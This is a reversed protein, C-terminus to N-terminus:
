RRTGADDAGEDPTWEPLADEGYFEADSPLEESLEPEPPERDLSARLLKMRMAEETGLISEVDDHDIEDAYYAEALRRRFGEDEALADIEDRLADVLLQTRSVDLLAAVSDAQEVLSPPANFNVRTKEEAM